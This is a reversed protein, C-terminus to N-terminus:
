TSIATSSTTPLRSPLNARLPETVCGAGTQSYGAFHSILRPVLAALDFCRNFRYCFESRYRQLYKQLSTLRVRNGNM